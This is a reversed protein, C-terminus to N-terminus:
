WVRLDIQDIRTFQSHSPSCATFMMLEKSFWVTCKSVFLQLFMAWIPSLFQPKQFFNMLEHICYLKELYARRALGIYARPALGLYARPALRLYARPALGIYARLALGLYARPALGLYARPALGLYARPALGLYARPALGLILDCFCGLVLGCTLDRSSSSLLHLIFLTVLLLVSAAFLFVFTCLCDLMKHLCLTAMYIWSIPYAIKQITTVNARIPSMIVNAVGPTAGKYCLSQGRRGTDDNLLGCRMVKWKKTFDKKM